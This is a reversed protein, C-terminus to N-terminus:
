YGDVCAKVYRASLIFDGPKNQSPWVMFSGKQGEKLLLEKAQQGTAYAHFWRCPFRDCIYIVAVLLVTLSKILGGVGMRRIHRGTAM